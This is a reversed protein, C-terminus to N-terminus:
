LDLLPQRSDPSEFGAGKNVVARRTQRHRWTFLLRLGIRLFPRAFWIPAWSPPVVWIVDRLRCRTASIPEIVHQHLWFRFPSRTALDTFACPARVGSHLAHWEFRLPWVGVRFRVLSGDAVGDGPDVVRFGMIRPTLTKLAEPSLHFDWVAEAPAAYDSEFEFRVVEM